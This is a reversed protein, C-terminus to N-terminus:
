IEVQVAEVFNRTSRHRKMYMGSSSETSTSVNLLFKLSMYNNIGSQAIQQM